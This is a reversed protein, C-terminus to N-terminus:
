KSSSFRPNQPSSSWTIGPLYSISIFAFSSFSIENLHESYSFISSFFTLFKIFFSICLNSLIISFVSKISFLSLFVFFSNCFSSNIFFRTIAVSLKTTFLGLKPSCVSIAPYGHNKSQPLSLQM